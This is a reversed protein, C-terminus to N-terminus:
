WKFEEAQGDSSRVMMFKGTTEITLEDLIKIIGKGAQDVPKGGMAAMKEAGAGFETVVFGPAVANVAIGKEKLDCSMSKAVMNVAAKSTRYAYIGGSGNDGISGMGTSIIAVKGGPSAMQANLAQQVRLPGLTNVEFAATMRETTVVDLKQEAM